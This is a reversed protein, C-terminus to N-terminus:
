IIKNNRKYSGIGSNGKRSEIAHISEHVLVHDISLDDKIKLKYNSKYKLSKSKQHLLGNILKVFMKDLPIETNWGLSELKSPNLCLKIAPLYRRDTTIDYIIHRNGYKSM